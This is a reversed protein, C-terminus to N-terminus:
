YVMNEQIAYFVSLDAASITQGALYSRTLLYSDLENLMQKAVQKDRVAASVFLVAYDIFQQILCKTEIDQNGLNTDKTLTLIITAFGLCIPIISIKLSHLNLSIEKGCIEGTKPHNSSIINDQNYKLKGVPVKLYNAIKSVSDIDCM